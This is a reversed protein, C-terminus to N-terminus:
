GYQNIADVFPFIAKVLRKVVVVVAVFADSLFGAQGCVFM